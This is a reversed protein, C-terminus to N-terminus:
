AQDQAELNRQAEFTDIPRNMVILKVIGWAIVWYVLMALLTSIEVVSGGAAPSGFVYLFPAVFIQSLGYVLQTFGAAVNAGFLKLAFRFLLLVEIAYFIYWIVRTTRYLSEQQTM